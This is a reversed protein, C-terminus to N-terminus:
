KKPRGPKRKQNVYSRVDRITEKTTEDSSKCFSYYIEGYKSEKFTKENLSPNKKLAEFALYERLIKDRNKSNIMEIEFIDFFDENTSPGGWVEEVVSELQPPIKAGNKVLWVLVGQPFVCTDNDEEGPMGSYEFNSEVSGRKIGRSLLESAYSYDREFGLGKVGNKFFREEDGFPDLGHVLFITERVSWLDLSKAHRYTDEDAPKFGSDLSAQM